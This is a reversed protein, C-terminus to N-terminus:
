NYRTSVMLDPLTQAQRTHNTTKSSLARFSIYLLVTGCSVPDTMARNSYFLEGFGEMCLSDGPMHKSFDFQQSLQTM